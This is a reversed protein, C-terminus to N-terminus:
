RSPHSSVSDQPVFIEDTSIYPYLELSDIKIDDSDRPEGVNEWIMFDSIDIDYSHLDAGDEKKPNKDKGGNQQHKTQPKPRASTTPKRKNGKGKTSIDDRIGSRYVVRQAHVTLVTLCSLILVIITKKM